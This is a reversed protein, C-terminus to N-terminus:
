VSSLVNEPVAVCFIQNSICFWVWPLGGTKWIHPLSIPVVVQPSIVTVMSGVLLCMLNAASKVTIFIHQINTLIINLISKLIRCCVALFPLIAQPGGFGATNVVESEYNLEIHGGGWGSFEQVYKVMSYNHDTFLVVFINWYSINCSENTLYLGSSVLGWPLYWWDDSLNSVMKFILKM